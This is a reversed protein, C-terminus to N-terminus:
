APHEIRVSREAEMWRRVYEPCNMIRIGRGEALVLFRVADRAVLTVERLDLLISGREEKMLLAALRDAHDRDMEGSLRFVTADPSESRSIRYM